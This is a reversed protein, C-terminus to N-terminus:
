GNKEEAKQFLDAVPSARRGTPLRFSIKGRFAMRLGLWLDRLPDLTYLKFRLLLALEDQRGNRRIGELFLRHFTRENMQPAHAEDASAKRIWEWLAAVNVGNPCRESCTLCGVCVWPSRAPLLEAKQGRAAMWVARHPPVDMLDLVPCGASCAQCQYCRLAGFSEGGEPSRCDTKQRAGPSDRM